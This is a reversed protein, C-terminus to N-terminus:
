LWDEDLHVSAFAVWLEGALYAAADPDWPKPERLYVNRVTGDPDRHLHPEYLNMRGVTRGARTGSHAFVVTSDPEIDIVVAIHTLLDDWRGNGDRDWTNDFFILDGIRPTEEWHLADNDVAADWITAVVGDMPVGVQSFVASVFGSCDDRFGRPRRVLFGRAAQAAQMSFSDLGPTTPGLSAIALLAISADQLAEYEVQHFREPGPPVPPAPAPTRLLDSLALVAVGFLAVFLLTRIRVRM